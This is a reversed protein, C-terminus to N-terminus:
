IKMPQNRMSLPGPGDWEFDVVCIRIQVLFM